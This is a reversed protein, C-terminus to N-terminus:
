SDKKTFFSNIDSILITNKSELVLKAPCNRYDIQPNFFDELARKKTEWIFFIFNYYINKIMNKSITIREKPEKPSDKIEIYSINEKNLIDNNPFLSCIHWDEWVWTLAIDINKVLDFYNQAFNNESFNPILFQDVKLDWKEILENIFLEKVLKTNSLDNDFSVIREDLLCFYIKDKISLDIKYFNIKLEKYFEKLSNWWSLWIVICEKNKLKELSKNFEKFFEKKLFGINNNTIKNMGVEIIM